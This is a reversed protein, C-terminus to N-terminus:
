EFPDSVFTVRDSPRPQNKQKKKHSKPMPKPLTYSGSPSGTTGGGGSCCSASYAATQDWFSPSAGSPGHGDELRVTGTRGFNGGFMSKSSKAKFNDAIIRTMIARAITLFAEDVNEGTAASTEIVPVGFEESLAEAEVQSVENPLDCKNAVIVKCVNDAAHSSIQAVWSRVNNFSERNSVDYCLLIGMANRYYAQTITRFREQGATDWIQLKLMKGDVNVHRIKFDVGITTMHQNQFKGETFRLLLCSKGVACDGVLLLKMLYDYQLPSSSQSAFAEGRPPPTSTM